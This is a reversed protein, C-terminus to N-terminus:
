AAFAYSGTMAFVNWYDLDPRNSMLEAVEKAAKLGGSEWMFGMCSQIWERVLAEETVQHVLYLPTLFTGCQLLQVPSFPISNTPLVGPLIFQPVSACIKRTLRRITDKFAPENTYSGDPIHRKVLCCLILRLLRLANAVQTTYHDAYLDYYNDLVNPHDASTPIRLPQWTPPLTNDLAKLQDDLCKARVIFDRQLIAGKEFDFKLNSVRGLVGLFSWKPSRVQYGLNRRLTVLEKPTDAAVTACSVTVATVLRAAIQCGTPSSLITNARAHILSLGGKSHSMWAQSTQPDRHVMKEYMDLLLISQLAEEAEQSSLKELALGLRQVARIYSGNALRMLHSSNLQTAMFALSAAEVSASLHDSTRATKYHHTVEAMSRTFGGIYTSFFAYRARTDWALELVTPQAQTGRLSDYARRSVAKREVSM